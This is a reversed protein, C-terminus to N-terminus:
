ADDHNDHMHPEWKAWDGCVDDSKKLVDHKECLTEDNLGGDHADQSYFCTRCTHAMEISGNVVADLGDDFKKFASCCLECMIWEFKHETDCYKGRFGTKAGWHNNACIKCDYGVITPWEVDLGSPRDLIYITESERTFHQTEWLAEGVLECISKEGYQGVTDLLAPDMCDFVLAGSQNDGTQYDYSEVQVDAYDRDIKGPVGIYGRGHIQEVRFNHLIWHLFGLRDEVKRNKSYEMNVKIIVTPLKCPRDDNSFPMGAAIEAEWNPYYPAAAKLKKADEWPLVVTLEMKEVATKYHLTYKSGDPIFFNTRYENGSINHMMDTTYCVHSQVEPYMCDFKSKIQEFYYFPLQTMSLCGAGRCYCIQLMEVYIHESGEYKDFDDDCDPAPIWEPYYCLQGSTVVSDVPNLLAIWESMTICTKTSVDTTIEVVIRPNHNCKTRKFSRVEFEANKLIKALGDKLTECFKNLEADAGPYLEVSITTRNYKDNTNVFEKRNNQNTM